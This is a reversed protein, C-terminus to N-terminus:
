RSAPVLKIEAQVWSYAAARGVELKRCVCAARVQRQECALSWKIFVGTLFQEFILYNINVVAFKSLITVFGYVNIYYM